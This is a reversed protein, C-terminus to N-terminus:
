LTNGRLYLCKPLIKMKFLDIKMVKITIETDKGDAGKDPM